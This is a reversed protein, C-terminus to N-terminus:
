VEAVAEAANGDHSTEMMEEQTEVIQEDYGSKALFKRERGRWYVHTTTTCLKECVSFSTTM